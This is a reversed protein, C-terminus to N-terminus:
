EWHKTLELGKTTTVPLLTDQGLSQIYHLTHQLIEPTTEYEEERNETIGHLMIIVWSKEEVARDIWAQIEEFETTNVVAFSKLWYPDYNNPRNTDRDFVRVGKYYNKTLERIEENYFSYPIAITDVREVLDAIYENSTVFEQEIEEPALETLFPHSYTHSAIEMGLDHAVWIQTSTMYNRDEAYIKNAIINYTAPINYHAHLPLSNYYWNTYGDDYSLTVLAQGNYANKAPATMKTLQENPKETTFPFSHATKLPEGHKNQVEATIVLEYAWHNIYPERPTIHITNGTVSLRTPVLQEYKDRIYVSDEHVSGADIATNFTIRWSKTLDEIPTAAKTANPILLLLMIFFVFKKMLKRELTTNIM